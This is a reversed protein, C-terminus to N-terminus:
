LTVTSHLWFSTDPKAHGFPRRAAKDLDGFIRLIVVEGMLRLITSYPGGQVGLLSAAVVDCYNAVISQDEQLM